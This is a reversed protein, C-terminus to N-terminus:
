QAQHRSHGRKRRGRRNRNPKTCSNRQLGRHGSHCVRSCDCPEVARDWGQSEVTSAYAVMGAFVLRSGVPEAGAEATLPPWYEACKGYCKSIGADDRSFTYLTMGKADTLVAGLSTDGKLIMSPLVACGTLVLGVSLLMPLVTKRPTRM